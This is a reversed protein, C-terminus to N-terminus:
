KEIDVLIEPMLIMIPQTSSRFAACLGHEFLLYTETDVYKINETPHISLIFHRSKLCTMRGTLLDYFFAGRINKEYLSHQAVFRM